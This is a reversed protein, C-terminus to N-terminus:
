KLNLLATEYQKAQAEPLDGNIQVLINDRAFTWSFLLASQKGMEDYFLKVRTLEEVNEISLLRGGCDACLSPIFFRVGSGVYPAMGYDDKTMSRTQEAELGAAKFAALVQATTWRGTSSPISTATSQSISTVMPKPTATVEVTALVMERVVVTQVTVVTQPVVVTERVVVTQPVVVTVPVAAPSGGCSALLLLGLLFPIMKSM